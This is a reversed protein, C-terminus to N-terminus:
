RVAKPCEIERLNEEEVELGQEEAAGYFFFRSLFFRKRESVRKM